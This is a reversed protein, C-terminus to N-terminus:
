QAAFWGLVQGYIPLTVVAVIEIVAVTGAVVWAGVILPRRRDTSQRRQWTAIVALVLAVPPLPSALIALAAFVRWPDSEGRTEVKELRAIQALLSSRAVAFLPSSVRGRGRPLVLAAVIMVPPLAILLGYTLGTLYRSQDEGSAFRMATTAGELVVVVTVLAPPVLVIVTDLIKAQLVSPIMQAATGLAFVSLATAFFAYAATLGAHGIMGHVLASGAGIVVVGVVVGQIVLSRKPSQDARGPIRSVAARTREIAEATRTSALSLRVAELDAQTAADAAILLALVAGAPVGFMEVVDLSNVTVNAVAANVFTSLAVFASAMAVVAAMRGWFQRHAVADEPEVNEHDRPMRLLVQLAISSPLLLLLAAGGQQGDLTAPSVVSVATQQAEAATRTLWALLVQVGVLLSGVLAAVGVARRLSRAYKTEAAVVAEGRVPDSRVEAPAEVTSAVLRHLVGGFGRRDDRDAM